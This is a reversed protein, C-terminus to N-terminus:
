SSSTTSIQYDTINDNVATPYRLGVQSDGYLCDNTCYIPKFYSKIIGYLIRLASTSITISISKESSYVALLMCNRLYYYKPFGEEMSKNKYWQCCDYTCENECRIIRKAEISILDIINENNVIVICLKEEIPNTTKRTCLLAYNTKDTVKYALYLELKYFADEQTNLSNRLYELLDCPLEQPLKISIIWGSINTYASDKPILCKNNYNLSAIQSM